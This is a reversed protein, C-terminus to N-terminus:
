DFYNYNMVRGILKLSHMRRLSYTEFLIQKEKEILSENKEIMSFKFLRFYSRLEM